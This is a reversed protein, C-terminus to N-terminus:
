QKWQRLIETKGKLKVLLDRSLWTPRKGEKESKKRRPTSLEQTNLFADKFVQLSQEVGMDRLATEWPTRNVLEKFVQFKEKRFNLTRVKSKGRCIDRLVAFEVLAHDSCGLSGGLKVNGIFESTNAVLLDLIVDGITPSNIVQSLFNDKIFELLRRSQRCNATSNRWCIDPHNFDGLLILGRILVKLKEEPGHSFGFLHQPILRWGSPAPCTFRM